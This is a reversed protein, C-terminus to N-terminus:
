CRQMAGPGRAIARGCAATRSALRVEHFQVQRAMGQRTQDARMGPRYLYESETIERNEYYGYFIRINKIFSDM